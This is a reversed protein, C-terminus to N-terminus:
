RIMDFHWEMRSQGQVLLNIQSQFEKKKYWRDSMLNSVKTSVDLQSFEHRDSVFSYSDLM